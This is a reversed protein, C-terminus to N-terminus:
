RYIRKFVGLLERFSSDDHEMLYEKSSLMGLAPLQTDLIKEISSKKNVVECLFDTLEKVLLLKEKNTTNPQSKGQEINLVTKEAIGMIEAMAAQTCGWVKRIKRLTIDWQISRIIFDENTQRPSTTLLPFYAESMCFTKEDPTIKIEVAIRREKLEPPVTQRDSCIDGYLFNDWSGFISHYM